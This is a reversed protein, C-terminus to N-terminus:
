SGQLCKANTWSVHRVIPDLDVRRAKLHFMSASRTSHAGYVCIHIGALLVVEKIWRSISAKCVATPCKRYTLFLANGRNLYSTMRICRALHTMHCLSSEQFPQFKVVSKHNGPKPTKLFVNIQFDFSGDDNHAM